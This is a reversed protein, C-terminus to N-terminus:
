PKLQKGTRARICHTGTYVYNDPGTGDWWFRFARQKPRPDMGYFWVHHPDAIHFAGVAAKYNSYRGDNDDCDYRREVPTQHPTVWIQPGGNHHPRFTQPLKHTHGSATKVRAKICRVYVNLSPNAGDLKFGWSWGRGNLAPWSRYIHNRTNGTFDFGPAVAYAGAGCDFGSDFWTAGAPRNDNAEVYRNSIDIDHRHNGAPGPETRYRTCTAFLKVQANGQARNELRFYWRNGHPNAAGYSAYVIVDRQDNYTGVDPDLPDDFDSDAPQFQDVHDIRWMGDLALDGADCAVYGNFTNDPYEGSLDVHREVKYTYVEHMRPGVNGAATSPAVLAAVIALPATLAVVAAGVLFTRSRTRATM